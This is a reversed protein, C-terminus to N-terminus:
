GQGSVHETTLLEDDPRKTRAAQNSGDDNTLNTRTPISTRADYDSGSFQRNVVVCGQLFERNGRLNDTYPHASLMPRWRARALKHTSPEEHETM